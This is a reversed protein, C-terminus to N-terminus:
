KTKEFLRKPDFLNCLLKEGTNSVVNVTKNIETILDALEADTDAIVHMRMFVQRLSGSKEIVDGEYKLQIVNLVGKMNKLKDVGTIKDIVGPKLLFYLNCCSKEFYPHALLSADHDDMNGLLSYDVMMELQSEGYMEKAFFYVQSGPLRYGMEYVYFGHDDVFMQLFAVGNEIKMKKFMNKVAPDVEQIYRDLYASKWTYAVPLSIGGDQPNDLHREVLGFLYMKGDQIMYHATVERGNEMYKEIIAEKKRSNDLAKKVGSVVEDKTRCVTIGVAGAGDVPKIIVPLQISDFDISETNGVCVEPTVPVGCQICLEKFNAKNALVDWQEKKAYFPLHLRQCLELAKELNFESVGAFVANVGNEICLDYLKDVEATSINWAEDALQKAKSKEVPTYDAVIVYAGNKQAYEIIDNTSINDGLLLLKKNEFKLSM